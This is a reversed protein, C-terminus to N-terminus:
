SDVGGCIREEIFRTLNRDHLSTSHVKGRKDKWELSKDPSSFNIGGSLSPFAALIKDINKRGKGYLSTIFREPFSLTNGDWGSKQLYHPIHRFLEGEASQRLNKLGHRYLIDSPLITSDHLGIRGVAVGYAFCYLIFLTSMTLIYSDSFPTFSGEEFCKGTITGKLITLPYLIGHHPKLPLIDKLTQLFGTFTEGPLGTVFQVGTVFGSDLAKKVAEKAREPSYSRGARSLVEEETSVIGVEITRVGFSKLEEPTHVFLAPPSASVRLPIFKGAIFQCKRQIRECISGLMVSDLNLLDGGYLGIEDPIRKYLALRKKFDSFSKEIGEPVGEIVLQDCFSCKGGCGGHTLFFPAIIKKHERYYNGSSAQRTKRQM